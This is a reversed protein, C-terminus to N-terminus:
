ELITIARISAILAKSFEGADGMHPFLSVFKNTYSLFGNEQNRRESRPRECHASCDMGHRSERLRYCLTTTTAASVRSASERM